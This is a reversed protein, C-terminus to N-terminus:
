WDPDTLYATVTADFRVQQDPTLVARIEFVYRITEMQLEGMAHHFDEIASQVNTSLERDAEIAAALRINAARMERERAQRQGAFRAEIEAVQSRQTDSLGLDRHIIRHLSPETNRSAFYHTTCWAAVVGTFAALFLSLILYFRASKM